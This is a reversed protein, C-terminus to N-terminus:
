RFISILILIIINPESSTTTKSDAVVVLGPPRNGTFRGTNTVTTSDSFEVSEAWRFHLDSDRADGDAPGVNWTVNGVLLDGNAAKFVVVGEGVLSGEEEGEEFQIEGVATFKGLHSAIGSLQFPVPEDTTLEVSGTLKTMKVASKGALAPQTALAVCVMVAILRFSGWTTFRTM